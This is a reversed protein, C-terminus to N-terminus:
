IKIKFLRPYGVGEDESTIWFTSDNIIKIAEIQANKIPLNYRVFSIKNLNESDFNNVKYLFQYGDTNYGVLAITNLLENYDAGTILSGVSLSKSPSLKYSGSTKPIFYLETSYNERNKSFLILQESTSALSEADYPHKSRRDFSKQSNYEINITGFCKFNKKPDLIIINLNKRNGFNNGTNSVFVFEGDSTIDEWDDNKGCDKIGFKNLIVGKEDFEYLIPLGGSDNHTIFNNGFFELGSTENIERPLFIENVVIQGISENLLLISLISLIYKVM